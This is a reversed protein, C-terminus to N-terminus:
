FSGEGYVAELGKLRWKVVVVGSKQLLGQIGNLRLQAVLRLPHNMIGHLGIVIRNQQLLNGTGTKPCVAHAAPFASQSIWSPRSVPMPRKLTSDNASSFTM